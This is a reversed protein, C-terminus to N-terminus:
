PFGVTLTAGVNWIHGGATYDGVLDAPDAKQTTTTVLESLQVHGDLRVDGPLEAIPALARLGLGLSMSHRDRDIYNTLGTQAGVPSKAYEYGARAFGEWKPRALARWEVGLHPVVRDSMKLAEIRTPAPASPPTIGNPWGGTPPPIDLGVNLSAVPPVYAGWNVWTVDLNARLDETLKWSGAVVLQQPLFNNVSHTDLAYIATTLHSIDGHLYASLDLKLKFEGRYVVALAVADSLEIRMGVQPYRVATLDADVQHRVQSDEARFINLFGGIDLKGETSSMFSFGGGIQLWKVPSVALNAALFLRQNRNDYLEWRPVEQRLARVRSIRDDPLHLALGFAFPVGLVKGPAVLGGVLGKVPDVDNDHGNTKLYHSARFYGVSLELGRARALGAPNYYNADFGSTDAAVASGMGAARSGLGFADLPNASGPSAHLM